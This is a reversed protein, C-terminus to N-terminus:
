RVPEVEVDADKPPFEGTLEKHRRRAESYSVADIDVISGDEQPFHFISQASRGM